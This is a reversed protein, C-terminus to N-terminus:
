FVSTKWAGRKCSSMGRAPSAAVEGEGCGLRGRKRRGLCYAFVTIARHGIVYYVTNNFLWKLVKYEM